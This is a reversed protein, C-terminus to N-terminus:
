CIELPARADKRGTMRLYFQFFLQAPSFLPMRPLRCGVPRTGKDVMLRVRYSGSSLRDIVMLKVDFPHTRMEGNVQIGHFARQLPLSSLM